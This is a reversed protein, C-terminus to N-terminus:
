KQPKYKQAIRVVKVTHEIWNSPLYIRGSKGSLTVMKELMHTGCVEFTVKTNTIKCATTKIRASYNKKAVFAIRRWWRQINVMKMFFRPNFLVQGEKPVYFVTLM